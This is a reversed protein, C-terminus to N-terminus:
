SLEKQPLEKGLLHSLTYIWDADDSYIEGMKKQGLLWELYGSDEVVVDTLLQGRYKGFTMKKFMIPEEMIQWFAEIVNGSFDDAVSVIESLKLFLAELVRVDGLADHARADDVQLDYYERLYEQKYNEADGNDIARALRLTDFYREIAIGERALMEVDFSANHAVFYTKDDGALAAFDKYMQSDVFAEQDAVMDDTIGTVASAGPDIPLPPKFLGEYEVGDVKYALQCLRHEPGLGTTETDFYVITVDDWLSEGAIVADHLHDSNVPKEVDDFLSEQGMFNM